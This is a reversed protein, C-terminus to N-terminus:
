IQIGQGRAYADGQARASLVGNDHAEILKDALPCAITTNSGGSGVITLL